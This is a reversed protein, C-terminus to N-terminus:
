QQPAAAAATFQMSDGWNNQYFVEQPPYRLSKLPARAEENRYGISVVVPCAYRSPIKLVKRLKRPDFGAQVMLKCM